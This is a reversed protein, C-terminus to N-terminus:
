KRFANFTQDAANVFAARQEEISPENQKIAMKDYRTAVRELDLAESTRGTFTLRQAKATLEMRETPSLPELKDVAQGPRPKGRSDENDPDDDRRSVGAKEGDSKLLGQDILSKLEEEVSRDNDKASQELREYQEDSLEVTKKNLIIQRKM